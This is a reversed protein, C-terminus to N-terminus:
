LSMLLKGPHAIIQGTNITMQYTNNVNTSRRVFLQLDVKNYGSTNINTRTASSGNFALRLFHNDKYALPNSNIRGSNTGAHSWGDLGSEFNAQHIITQASLQMSVILLLLLTPFVYRNLYVIFTKM